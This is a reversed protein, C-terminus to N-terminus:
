KRGREKPVIQIRNPRQLLRHFLFLLCVGVKELKCSACITRKTKTEQAMKNRTPNMPGNRRGKEKRLRESGNTEHSRRTQASVSRPLRPAHRGVALRSRTSPPWPGSSPPTNLSSLTHGLQSAPYSMSTSLYSLTSTPNQNYRTFSDNNIIQTYPTNSVTQSSVASAQGDASTELPFSASTDGLTTPIENYYSTNAYSPIGSHISGFAQGSAPGLLGPSSAIQVSPQIWNPQHYGPPFFPQAEVNMNSNSRQFSEFGNESAKYPPAVNVGILEEETVRCDQVNHQHNTNSRTSFQQSWESQNTSLLQDQCYSVPIIGHVADTLAQAHQLPERQQPFWSFEEGLRYQAQSTFSQSICM